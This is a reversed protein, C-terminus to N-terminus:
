SEAPYRTDVLQDILEYATSIKTGGSERLHYFTHQDV